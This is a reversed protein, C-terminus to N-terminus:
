RHEPERSFVACKASSMGDARQTKLGFVDDITLL